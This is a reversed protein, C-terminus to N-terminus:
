SAPTADPLPGRLACQIPGAVANQAEKIEKEHAKLELDYLAAYRNFPAPNGKGKMLLEERRSGVIMRAYNYAKRFDESQEAYEHLKSQSFYGRIAAFKRLVLSDSKDAWEIFAKAEEELDFRPPRGCGHGVAYKNGKPPAM